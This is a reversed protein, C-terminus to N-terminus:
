QNSVNAHCCCVIMSHNNHQARTQWVHLHCVDHCHNNQSPRHDAWPWQMRIIALLFQVRCGILMLRSFVLSSNLLCVPKHCGTLAACNHPTCRSCCTLSHCLWLLVTVFTQKQECAIPKVGQHFCDPDWFYSHSILSVLLCYTNFAHLPLPVSIDCTVPQVRACTLRETQECAM